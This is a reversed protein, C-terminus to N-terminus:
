MNKLKLKPKQRLTKNNNKDQRLKSVKRSRKNEMLFLVPM